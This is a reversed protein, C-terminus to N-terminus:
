TSSPVNHDPLLRSAGVLRQQWYDDSINIKQVGGGQNTAGPLAIVATRADVLLAVMLRNGDSRDGVRFFLLDGPAAAGLEIPKGADLQGQLSRPLARGNQRYAYYTLGTNDYQKPGAMHAAYRNGVQALAVSALTHRPQDAQSLSEGAKDPAPATRSEPVSSCATIALAIGLGIAIRLGRRSHISLSLSTAGATVFSRDSM